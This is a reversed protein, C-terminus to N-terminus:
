RSLKGKISGLSRLQVSHLQDPGLLLLRNHSLMLAMPLALGQL